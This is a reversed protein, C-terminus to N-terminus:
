KSWEQATQELGPKHWDNPSKKVKLYQEPSMDKVHTWNTAKDNWKSHTVTKKEYNPHYYNDHTPANDNPHTQGPRLVTVNEEGKSDYKVHSGAPGPWSRWITSGARNRKEQALENAEHIPTVTKKYHNVDEPNLKRIVQFGDQSSYVNYGHHEEHGTPKVEYVHQGYESAIDPRDSAFAATPGHGDWEDGRQKTPNIFGGKITKRNTGHFLRFQNQSLHDSASM